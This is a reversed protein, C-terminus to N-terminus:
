LTAQGTTALDWIVNASKIWAQRQVDPLGDFTLESAPVPGNHHLGRLYATYAIRARSEPTTTTAM